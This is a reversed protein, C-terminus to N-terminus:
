VQYPEVAEVVVRRICNNEDHGEHVFRHEICWACAADDGFEEEFDESSADGQRAKKPPAGREDPCTRKNHGTKGCGSCKYVRRKTGRPTEESVSSESETPNDGKTKQCTRKNHGTKGCVSCKRHSREKEEESTSPSEM